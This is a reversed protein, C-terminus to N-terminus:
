ISNKSQFYSTNELKSKSKLKIMVYRCVRYLRKKFIHYRILNKRKLNHLNSITRNFPNSRQQAIIAELQEVTLNDSLKIEVDDDKKLPMFITGFIAVCLGSSTTIMAKSIGGALSQVDTGSNQLANFTQIMGVVTGLLGLLPVVNIMINYFGRTYSKSFFFLGLFFSSTLIIYNVSGGKGWWEICFNIYNM